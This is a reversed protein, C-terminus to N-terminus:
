LGIVDQRYQGQSIQLNTLMLQTGKKASRVVFMKAFALVLNQPIEQFAKL